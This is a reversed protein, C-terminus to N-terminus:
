VRVRLNNRSFDDAFDDPFDDALDDPAEDPLDDARARTRPHGQQRTQQHSQIVSTGSTVRFLQGGRGGASSPSIPPSAMESGESGVVQDLPRLNGRLKTWI